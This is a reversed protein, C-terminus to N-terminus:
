GAKRAAETKEIATQLHADRDYVDDYYHVAGTPDPWATFYTLYVPIDGAVRESANEGRAIHQEVYAVSKGLLAAAMEKPHQLRVCGHSLARMDRTFFAKEPTDHMYIAHKNPFEIKVLGLANRRGPPQRVEVSAANKAFAAWDVSNSAIQRGRQNLVEYGHDDLYSGDRYLKPLMENVVISRPM